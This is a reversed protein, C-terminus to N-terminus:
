AMPRCPLDPHGCNGAGPMKVWRRRPKPLCRPRSLLKPRGQGLDEPIGDPGFDTQLPDPATEAALSGVLASSDTYRRRMASDCIRLTILTHAATAHASPMSASDSASPM